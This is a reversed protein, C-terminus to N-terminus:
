GSQRKVVRDHRDLAPVRGERCLDYGRMLCIHSSGDGGGRPVCRSRTDIWRLNSVQVRLLNM